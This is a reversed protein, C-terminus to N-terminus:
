PAISEIKSGTKASASDFMTKYALWMAAALGAMILVALAVSIIGEGREEAARRRNSSIKSNIKKTNKKNTLYTYM